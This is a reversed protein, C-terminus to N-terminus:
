LDKKLLYNKVICEITIQNYIIYTYNYIYKILYLFFILNFYESLLSLFHM